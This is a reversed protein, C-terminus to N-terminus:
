WIGVLVSHCTSVAQFISDGGLASCKQMAQKFEKLSIVGTQWVHARATAERHRPPSISRPSTDSLHRSRVSHPANLNHALTSSALTSSTVKETDIHNFAARMETVEKPLLLM